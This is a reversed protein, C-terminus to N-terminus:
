KARKANLSAARLLAEQEYEWILDEWAQDTVSVTGLNQFQSQRPGFLGPTELAVGVTTYTARTRIVARWKAQTRRMRARYAAAAMVVTIIAAIVVVAVAVRVM